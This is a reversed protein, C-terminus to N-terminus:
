NTRDDDGRVACEIVHIRAKLKINEMLVDRYSSMHKAHQERLYGNEVEIRKMRQKEKVTMM